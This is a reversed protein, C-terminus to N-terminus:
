TRTQCEERDPLLMHSAPLAKGKSGEPSRQKSAKRSGNKELSELAHSERSHQGYGGVGHTDHTGWATNFSKIFPKLTPFTSAMIGYHMEINMCIFPIVGKLLPETSEIADALYHM